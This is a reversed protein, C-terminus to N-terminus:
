SSFTDDQLIATTIKEISILGTDSHAKEKEDLPNVRSEFIARILHFFCIEDHYNKMYMESDSIKNM